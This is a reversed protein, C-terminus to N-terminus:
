HSTQQEPPNEDEKRKLEGSKMLWFRLTIAFLVLIIIIISSTGLEVADSVDIGTNLTKEVTQGGGYEFYSRISYQCTKEPMFDVSFMGLANTDVVQADSVLEKVQEGKCYIHSVLWAETQKM